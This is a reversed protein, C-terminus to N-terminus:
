RILNGLYIAASTTALAGDSAATIVQRLPTNRVDGACYLGPTDTSMDAHTEISGDQALQVLGEVAKTQPVRGVSVFIGFSGPEFTETQEVGTENNRFTIDSALQGGSIKTISTLYRVKIKDNHEVQRVLRSVARLHDKRVILTVDAGFRSLFVSEECAATGGGIVFIHKGAYFMADCTACYSVGHGTYTDEGEFGALRPSAGAAYVVARSQYTDDDGAVSFLGTAEDKTITNITDYAFKSGLHQAHEEFKSSLETGSLNEIGPYNDVENSLTIQGGFAGQEITLAEIGARTAYISASLGAPGGGVIILDHPTMMSMHIELENHIFVIKNESENM